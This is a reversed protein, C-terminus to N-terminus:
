KGLLKVAEDLLETDIVTKYDIAKEIMNNRAYWEIQTKIDEVLLRGDRDIYPLGLKINEEPQDTYQAIIKIVEDYNEGPVTQGNEQVLAADHYYRTAKVYAKLFRIAADRNQAFKESFFIGANQYEIEDGVPVIVKGYGDKVAQTINPENLIVADVQKSQLTEMMAGVKGLPVIEVDALSMGHNELIRGAMYHFTSGTQTIGIKKGKLDEVSDIPSDKHVVLASLPYGSKERGKDAVILLKQGEAIMNYLSATIGTAGIDVSGSATAVAIPQAAEFWEFTADIGEEKFFGKEMAIFLPASSTLKLLGIKVSVPEVGGNQSSSQKGQGCAGLIVAMLMVAVLLFATRKKM